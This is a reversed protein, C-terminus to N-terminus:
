VFFFMKSSVCLKVMWIGTLIYAPKTYSNLTHFPQTYFFLPQQFASVSNALEMHDNFNSVTV